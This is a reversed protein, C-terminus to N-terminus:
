NLWAFDGWIYIVACGAMLCVMRLIVRGSSVTQYICTRMAQSEVGRFEAACTLETSLKLARLILPLVLCEYSQAPHLLVSYWHPFMGRARIGQYIAQIELRIVTFFRLLIGIALLAKQPLHMRAGTWMLVNPPTSILVMGIAFMPLVKIYMFFVVTVSGVSTPLLYVMLWLCIYIVANRLASPFRALSILYLLCLGTLLHLQITSAILFSTVTVAFLSVLTIRPDQIPKM